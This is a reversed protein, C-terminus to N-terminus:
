CMTSYQGYAIRFSLVFMGIISGGVVDAPHHFDDHARSSAIFVALLM